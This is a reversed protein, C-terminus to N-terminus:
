RDRICMEKMHRYDQHTIEGDKWDQYIAQKYCVIKAFEREKQEIADHLKKSQSKVRDRICM